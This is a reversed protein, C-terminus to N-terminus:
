NMKTNKEQIRQTPKKDVFNVTTKLVFLMDDPGVVFVYFMSIVPLKQLKYKKQLWRKALLNFCQKVETCYFDHQINAPWM